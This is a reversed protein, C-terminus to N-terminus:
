RLFSRLSGMTLVRRWPRILPLLFRLSHCYFTQHQFSFWHVLGARCGNRPSWICILTGHYDLPPSDSLFTWYQLDLRENCKIGETGTCTWRVTINTGVTYTPNDEFNNPLIDGPPPTVFTLQSYINPIFLFLALWLKFNTLGGMTLDSLSSLLAAKWYNEHETPRRQPLHFLARKFIYAIDKQMTHHRECKNVNCRAKM